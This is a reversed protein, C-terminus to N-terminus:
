VHTLKLTPHTLVQQEIFEIATNIVYEYNFDPNSPDLERGGVLLKVVYDGNHWDYRREILDFTTIKHRGNYLGATLHIGSSRGTNSFISVSDGWREAVMPVIRSVFEESLKAYFEDMMEQFDSM